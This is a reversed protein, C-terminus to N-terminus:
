PPCGGTTPCNLEVSQGVAKRLLRQADSALITKTNDVDCVRLCCQVLKVAAQLTYQADSSLVPLPTDTPKGCPILVCNEGCYEGRAFTANGDDCEETGNIQGDGCVGCGGIPNGSCVQASCTDDETCSNNDNCPDSNATYSCGTAVSCLDDTCVNQDSCAADNPVHLCNGTAAQCSDTTCNFNDACNKTAHQCTGGNLTTNCTDTTCINGDECLGWPTCFGSGTDCTRATGCDVNTTCAIKPATQTVCKENQCSSNCGDNNVTNGDDCTEGGDIEANGCVPCPPLLGNVVKTATPTVTGSITPPKAATRYVLTNTGLSGTKMLSGSLLKMSERATISNDGTTLGADIQGLATLTVRCASVDIAGNNGTNTRLSGSVSADGDSSDLFISGANGGNSASLDALGAFALNGTSYFQLDGGADAGGTLDIVGAGVSLTGGGYGELTGGGGNAGLGKATIDGNSILNGSADLVVDGGIADPAAGNSVIRTNVNLTLNRDASLDQSGGDGAENFLNAHGSTELGTKNAASVGSITIDRSAVILFEGGFGAGSGSDALLSRGISVDRGADIDITGGDYDGGTMDIEDSTVVDQGAYLSVDGGTSLGGSTVTVKAAVTISGNTADVSLEGGDSDATTGALNITKTLSVNDAARLDIFAPYVSNGVISGGMAISATGVTCTGFACDTNSACNVVTENARNKCTLQAPCAGLDCDANTICQRSEEKTCVKNLGKQICPGVACDVDNLCARTPGSACRRTGCPGLQCAAPNICPFAPNGLSCKRRAFIKVTGSQAVADVVANADIAPNTTSATFDGCLISGSSAGFNFQGAGSVSVDRVGFDLVVSGPKCFGPLTCDTNTTCAAANNTCLGEPIDMVSTVNCPDANGACVDTAKTVTVAHADVSALAAAFLAVPLILLRSASKALRARVGCRESITPGSELRMM